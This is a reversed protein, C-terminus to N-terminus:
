KIIKNVLDNWQTKQVKTASYMEFQFEKVDSPVVLIHYEESIKDKTIENRLNTIEANDMQFPVRMVFIPKPPIYNGSPTPPIPIHPM